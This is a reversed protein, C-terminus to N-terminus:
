VAEALTLEMAEFLPKFQPLDVLERYKMRFTSVARIAQNILIEMKDKDTIVNKVSYYGSNEPIKVDQINHFVQVPRDLATDNIVHVEVNRILHRAENLRHQNAAEENDWTFYSHLVSSQISADAVVHEPLLKGNREEIESLRVGVAQADGSLRSGSKFAYVTNKQKPM